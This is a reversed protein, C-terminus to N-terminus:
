KRVRYLTRAAEIAKVLRLETYINGKKEEDIFRKFAIFLANYYLQEMDLEPFEMSEINQTKM